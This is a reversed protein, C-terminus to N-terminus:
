VAYLEIEWIHWTLKRLEKNIFNLGESIKIKQAETISHPRGDKIIEVDLWLFQDFVHPKNQGWM